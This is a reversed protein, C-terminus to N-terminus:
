KALALFDARPPSFSELLTVREKSLPRCGHKENSKFVYSMNEEIVVPETETLFEVKGKLCIGVQENVHSHLPIKATSAIEILVFMQKEGTILITNKVGPITSFQKADERKVFIL